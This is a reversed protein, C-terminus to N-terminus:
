ELCTPLEILGQVNFQGGDCHAKTKEPTNGENGTKSQIKRFRSWRQADSMTTCPERYPRTAAAGTDTTKSSSEIVCRSHRGSLWRVGSM